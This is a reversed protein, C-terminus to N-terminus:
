KGYITIVGAAPISTTVVGGASIIQDPLDVNYQSGTTYKIGYIGAPLGFLNFSGGTIAKVPVAYKGNPNIFALPDFNANGSTAAIRVAGRRIFKFYQRLFKMRSAITVTHTTHNVLYYTSGDDGTIVPDYALTNQQWAVAGAKIDTILIHYTAGIRELMSISLGDAEAVAKIENLQAQTCADSTYRHYSLEGGDQMIPVISPNAAKMANYIVDAKDCNTTSPAIFKPFWGHAALRNRTAILAAALKVGSPNTTSGTWDINSTKDAELLIDIAEPVWGYKSNLRLFTAEYLEACEEANGSHLQDASQFDVLTLVVYLTEGQEALKARMLNVTEAQVDVGNANGWQFGAPNIVFPDANDNTSTSANPTPTETRTRVPLTVRNLGDAVAQDVLSHKYLPYDSYDSQGAQVGTQWGSITQYRINADVSITNSSPTPTPTPAPTPTSSPSSVPTPTPTPLLELPTNMDAIVDTASLDRNYFRIEDLTGLFYNTSNNLRGFNWVANNVPFSNDHAISGILIGDVHLKVDTTSVAMAFHHFNDDALSQPTEVEQWWTGDYLGVLLAGTAKTMVYIQNSSSIYKSLIHSRRAVSTKFQGTLTFPGSPFDIDTGVVYQNTGNFSLGNGYKGTTWTAGVVTATQNNGSVDATITGSGEEFSYAAVLGELNFTAADADRQNLSVWGAVVLILGALITYLAKM